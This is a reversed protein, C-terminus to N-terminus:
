PSNISLTDLVKEYWPTQHSLRFGLSQYLKIAQTNQSDVTIDAVEVGRSQLHVMGGELLKRGLGRNRYDPHVGMMEIRGKSKGLSLSRSRDPVTWCFGILLGKDLAVIIDDLSNRRDKLQWEIDHANDPNYGWSGQFCINQIDALASEEGARLRRYTSSPLEISRLDAQSFMLRMECHHRVISFGLKSLLAVQAQDSTRISLHAVRAGLRRARELSADLLECLVHESNYAPVAKYELVVRGIRLEPLVNMYGVVAEYAEALFLNEALSYGPRDLLHVFVAGPNLREYAAADDADHPDCTRITSSHEM